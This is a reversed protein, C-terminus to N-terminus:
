QEGDVVIGIDYLFAKSSCNDLRLFIQVDITLITLQEVLSSDQYVRKCGAKV